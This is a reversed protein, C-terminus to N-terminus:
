DDDCLVIIFHASTHSITPPRPSMLSAATCLPKANNDHSSTLHRCRGDMPDNPRDLTGVATWVDTLAIPRLAAPVAHGSAPTRDVRQGGIVTVAHCKCLHWRRWKLSQICHQRSWTSPRCLGGGTWDILGVHLQTAQWYYLPWCFYPSSDRCCHSKFRRMFLWDWSSLSLFTRRHLLEKGSKTRTM